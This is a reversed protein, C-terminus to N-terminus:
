YASAQTRCGSDNFGREIFDLCSELSLGSSFM